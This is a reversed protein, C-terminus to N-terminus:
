NIVFSVLKAVKNGELHYVECLYDVYGTGDKRNGSSKGQVSAVYGEVVVVGFEFSTHEPMKHGDMKEVGSEGNM